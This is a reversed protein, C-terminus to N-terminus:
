MFRCVVAVYLRFCFSNLVIDCLVTLEAHPANGCIADIRNM